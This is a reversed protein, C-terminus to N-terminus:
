IIGHSNTFAIIFSTFKPKCTNSNNRIKLKFDEGLIQSALFRATCSIISQPKNDKQTKYPSM